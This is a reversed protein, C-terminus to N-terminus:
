KWSNLMLHHKNTVKKITKKVEDDTPDNNSANPFPSQLSQICIPINEKETLM